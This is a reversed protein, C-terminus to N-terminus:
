VRINYSLQGRTRQPSKVRAAPVYLTPLAFEEPLPLVPECAQGETCRAAPHYGHSRCRGGAGGRILALKPEQGAFEKMPFVGVVVSPLRRLVDDAVTIVPLGAGFVCGPHACRHVSGGDPLDRHVEVTQNWCAPCREVYAWRGHRGAGDRPAARGSEDAPPECRDATAAGAEGLFAVMFGDVGAGSLRPRSDRRRVLEACGVMDVVQQMHRADLLGLPFRFWGSIGAARGRLRDLFCTLIIICLYAETRGAGTPFYVMDVIDDEAPGREANGAVTDVLQSVIFLIHFLRWTEGQSTARAANPLALMTRMTLEFAYRVDADEAILDCGGAFAEVVRSFDDAADGPRIPAEGSVAEPRGRLAAHLEEEFARRLLTLTELTRSALSALPAPSQERSLFSAQDRLSMRSLSLRSPHDRLPRVVCDSGWGFREGSSRVSRSPPQPIPLVDAGDFELVIVPDAFSANDTGAIPESANVFTLRVVHTAQPSANSGAADIRGAIKWRWARAMERQHTALFAGVSEPSEFISAPIALEGAPPADVIGQTDAVSPASAARRFEMDLADYLPGADLSWGGSADRTALVAGSASCHVRGLRYPIRMDAGPDSDRDRIEDLHKLAPFVPHCCDWGISVIVRICDGHVNLHLEAGIEGSALAFRPEDLRSADSLSRLTRTPFAGCPSTGLYDPAARDISISEGTDSRSEQRHSM